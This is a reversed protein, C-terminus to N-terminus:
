FTTRLSPRTVMLIVGVLPWLTWWGHLRSLGWLQVWDSFMYWWCAKVMVLSALLMWVGEAREITGFAFTLGIGVALAVFGGAGWLFASGRSDTFGDNPDRHLDTSLDAKAGNADM